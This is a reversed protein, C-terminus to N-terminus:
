PARLATLPDIRAARLAPLVAAGAGAVCIVLLATVYTVPDRASLDILMGELARTLWFAALLGAASGALVITMANGVVLRLIRNRDAGFAARVGIERTRQAVAFSLLGYVGIGALLLALAGFTSLLGTTLRRETMLERLNGELNRPVVGITRDLAHVHRTLALAAANADGRASRVTVYLARSYFPVQTYLVFVEPSRDDEYGSHRVDEVVGVITLWPVDDGYGEMGPTRIRKGIAEDQPWYREALSRNVIAVRPTAPGDNRDFTRGRLIAIGLADFYEGNVARYGAGDPVQGIGEVELYSVGAYETPVGSGLAVAKIDPDQRLSATVQSWVQMRGNPQLYREGTLVVQAAAVGHPDFGLDRDLVHQFSRLLLGGATLLLVATGVELMVLMRGPMTRGGRVFGRENHKVDSARLAPIVGAAMGAVASLVVTFLVVRVDLAVEGIRPLKTAVIHSMVSVGWWALVLGMLGGALATMVQETLLQRIVRLRSAGLAYRVSIEGRRRVSRALNLAALNACAILLVCGVASMLIFLFGRADSVLEDQLRHVFVAHSYDSEPEAESIGKAVSTLEAEAAEAAIGPKLRAIAQWNINNRIRGTGHRESAAVVWVETGQPYAAGDPVVGVVQRSRNDVVLNSGGGMQTRYFSETVVVSGAPADVAAFGRGRVFPSRMVHFFDVSVTAADVQLAADGLRVTKRGPAVLATSELTRNGQTWDYWNSYSVRSIPNKMSDSGLLVVLRDPEAYPLPRLIVRDVFTFMTTTLGIGLAFTLLSLATAGPANRARRWTLVADQRLEDLVETRRTRTASRQVAARLAERDGFRELAIERARAPSHGDRELEEIRMALHSEIEDNLEADVGRADSRRLRFLKRYEM